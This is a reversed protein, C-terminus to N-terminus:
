NLDDFRDLSQFFKIMESVTALQLQIKEQQVTFIMCNGNEGQFYTEIM